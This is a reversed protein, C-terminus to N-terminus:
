VLPVSLREIVARTDPRVGRWWAFAEAAQLVMWRAANSEIVSDALMQHFITRISSGWGTACQLAGPARTDHAAGSTRARRAM